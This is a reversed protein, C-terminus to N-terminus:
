ASYGLEKAKSFAKNAEEIRNSANLAVGKNYWAEAYKPDIEIAEDFAMIADDYKYQLNLILGKGHWAEYDDPDIHTVKNFANAAEDYKRLAKLALGKNFWADTYRPNIRIAKDYAKIGKEHAGSLNQDEIAAGKNNWAQAINPNIRIANDYATIAEDYRGQSQLALGKNIWAYAYEPNLEIAKEHSKIAEDYMELDRYASGKDDWAEAYDPNIGTANNYDRIAEKTKDTIHLINARNEWGFESSPNIEITKNCLEIAKSPKEMRIYEFELTRLLDYARKYSKESRIAKLSEEGARHIADLSGTLEYQNYSDLAETYYKLSDWAKASVNSHPLDHAIMFTLNRIMDHLQEEDNNEVIERVTWSQLTDGELVAVLIIHSGYRQLSGRITNDPKRGPCINKFAIIIKGPDLSGYGTSITGTDAMSFEMIETKPVLPSGISPDASLEAEFSIGTNTHIKTNYKTNHIRQIRLLESTMMDAITIGSLSENKIEFPLVAIGKPTYIKIFIFIIILLLLSFIIIKFISSLRAAMADLHNVHNQYEEQPREPNNAM